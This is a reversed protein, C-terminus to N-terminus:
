KLWDIGLTFRTGHRTQDGSIGGTTGFGMYWAYAWSGRLLWSGDDGLRRALYAGPSLVWPTFGAREISGLGFRTLMGGDWAGGRQSRGLLRLRPETFFWLISPDGVQSQYSLGFACLNVRGAQQRASFCAEVDTGGHFEGTVPGITQAFGSHWGSGFEFGIDWGPESVVAMRRHSERVDRYLLLHTAVGGGVIALPRIEYEADADPYLEYTSAESASERERIPYVRPPHTRGGPTRISLTVDATSLEARYVQGRELFVRVYEDPGTYNHDLVLVDANTDIPQPPPASAQQGQAARVAGVALGTAVLLSRATPM